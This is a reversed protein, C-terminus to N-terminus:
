VTLPCSKALPLKSSRRRCAFDFGAPMASSKEDVSSSYNTMASVGGGGAQLLLPTEHSLADSVRLTNIRNPDISLILNCAHTWRTRDTFSKADIDAGMRTTEEYVLTIEKMHVVEHLWSVSVRHTRGM